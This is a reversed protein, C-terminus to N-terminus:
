FYFITSLILNRFLISYAIQAMQQVIFLVEEMITFNVFCSLFLWILLNNVKKYYRRISTVSCILFEIIFLPWNLTCSRNVATSNINPMFTKKSRSYGQLISTYQRRAMEYFRSKNRTILFNFSASPWQMPYFYVLLKFFM